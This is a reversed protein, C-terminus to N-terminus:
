KGAKLTVSIGTTAGIKALEAATIGCAAQFRSQRQPFHFTPTPQLEGFHLWLSLGPIMILTQATKEMQVATVGAASKAHESGQQTM